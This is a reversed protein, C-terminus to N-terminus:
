SYPEPREAKKKKKAYTIGVNKTNDTPETVFRTIKDISKQISEINKEFEAKRAQECCCQLEEIMQEVVAVITTQFTTQKTTELILNMRDRFNDINLLGRKNESEIENLGQMLGVKNLHASLLQYKPYKRFRQIINKIREM